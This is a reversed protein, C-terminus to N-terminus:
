KIFRRLLTTGFFGVGFGIIGVLICLSITVTDIM